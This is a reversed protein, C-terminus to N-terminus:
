CRPGWKWGARLVRAAAILLFCLMAMSAAWAQASAFKGGERSQLAGGIPPGTLAGFGVTSFAMGLRTGVMDLRKTISTVTTPILCQFAASIIGYICTFVYFGAVSDVALWTYSVIAYCMAIPVLTNLPGIRDAFLPPIVRAPIGIGNIIIVLNVANTYSLGLQETGFSAIQILFCLTYYLAWMCGFLGGVFCLYVPERFASWDIVPGSKRPPLRPRIFIGVIVLCGLNMFGLVRTTWAFGLKPLLQRVVIPYIMGGASNGTTAIGLALARRNSFYTAILALSPTFFIGNGLGTLVGQTLILQWYKTSISMLFIGLIQFVAGTIFTPMFLGADLLRGSFAGVFFTFWVQISGIWSITSPSLSLTTTYHTQFSGFSNVYGWTTFLVLWGM